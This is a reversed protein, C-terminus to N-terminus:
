KQVHWETNLNSHQPRRPANSHPKFNDAAVEKKAATGTGGVIVGFWPEMFQKNDCCDIRPVLTPLFLRKEVSKFVYRGLLSIQTYYFM